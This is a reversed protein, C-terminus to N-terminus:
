EEVMLIEGLGANARDGLFRRLRDGFATAPSGLAALYARLLALFGLTCSGGDHFTAPLELSRQLVVTGRRMGLGLGPGVTGGVVLTGAIMHGAAVGGVNGDVVVTGRRLRVAAREGAAGSVHILGGRMGIREGPAPGALDDSANGDILLAGGSMASGAYCGCCGEVRVVGGSMNRGLWAGATGQVILEGGAMGAGLRELRSDADAIVLRTPDDGSISFLQDLRYHKDAGALPVAALEIRSMGALLDPRLASADAIRPASDLLTLTVTM